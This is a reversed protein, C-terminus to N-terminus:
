FIELPLHHVLVLLSHLLLGGGILHFLLQFLVTDLLSAQEQLAFVPVLDQMLGYEFPCIVFLACLIPIQFDLMEVVELAM